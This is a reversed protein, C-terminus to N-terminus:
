LLQSFRPQLVVLSQATLVAAVRPLTLAPRGNADLVRVDGLEMRPM